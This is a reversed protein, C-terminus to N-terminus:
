EVILTGRLADGGRAIAVVQVHAPFSVGVAGVASELRGDPGIPTRIPRIATHQLELTSGPELGSAEFTVGGGKRQGCVEADGKRVCPSAGNSGNACSSIVLLAIGALARSLRVQLPSSIVM